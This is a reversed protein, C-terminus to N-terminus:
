ILDHQLAFRLLGLSNRVNLKQFVHKRHTEVTNFSIFLKKSIDKSNYGECILQIIEIERNTLRELITAADNPHRDNSSCSFKELIRKRLDEGMYAEGNRICTIARVIENCNNRKDIFGSIGQRFLENIKRISNEGTLILVKTHPLKEKVLKILECVSGESFRTETIILDAEYQQLWSVAQAPSNASGVINGWGNERLVAALGDITIQHQDVIFIKM